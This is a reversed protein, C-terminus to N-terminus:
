VLLVREPLPQHGSIAACCLVKRHILFPVLIKGASQLRLMLDLIM